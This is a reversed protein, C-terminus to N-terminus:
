QDFRVLSSVPVLAIGKAALNNSWDELLSITVPLASAVGIATGRERAIAELQSLRDVISDEDVRADLVVDARIVPQGESGLSGMRSRASRGDDLVMLGRGIADEMVPLVAQDVSAFRAGMYNMFGIPTSVRSLAWHMRELNAEADLSTLLTHPGPDNNPYDFPEMPIEVLYEHGAARARATWRQLSFGYPAFSLTTAPPLRTIVESTRTQSMGLGGVVLAIRPQGPAVTGAELPRAYVDLAREGSPGRVPIFSDADFRAVLGADPTSPLGGQADFRPGSSTRRALADPSAPERVSSRPVEIVRPGDDSAFGDQGPRILAPGLPDEGSAEDDTAQPDNGQIPAMAIPEGGLEDDVTFVWAGVGVLALLLVAAGIRTFWRSVAGLLSVLAGGGGKAKRPRIPTHLDSVTSTAM